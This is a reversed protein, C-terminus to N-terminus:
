ACERAVRIRAYVTSRAHFKFVTHAFYEPAAARGPIPSGPTFIIDIFTGELSVGAILTTCVAAPVLKTVEFTLTKVSEFTSVARLALGVTAFTRTFM